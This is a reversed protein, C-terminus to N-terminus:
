SWHNLRVKSIKDGIGSYGAICGIVELEDLKIYIFSTRGDKNPILNGSFGPKVKLLGRGKERLIDMDVFVWKHM